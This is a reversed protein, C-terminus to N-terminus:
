ITIESWTGASSLVKKVTRFLMRFQMTYTRSSTPNTDLRQELDNPFLFVSTTWM